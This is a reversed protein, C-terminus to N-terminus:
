RSGPVRAGACPLDPSHQRPSLSAAPVPVYAQLYTDPDWGWLASPLLRVSSDAVRRSYGHEETWRPHHPLATFQVATAMVARAAPDM